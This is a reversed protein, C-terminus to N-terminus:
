DRCYVEIEVTRFNFSGALFEKAENSGFNFMPHMYSYGLNSYSHKNINSNSRINIDHGAGFTPGYDISCYIAHAPNTCKIKIPNNDRNIFSFIFAYKDQKNVNYGSWDQETFGGFVYGNLSKIVTLTNTKDDCLTHFAASSFGNESARYVIKWKLDLNFGCLKLLENMQKDTLISRLNYCKLSGLENLEMSEFKLLCGDFILNDLKFKTENSKQILQFAYENAEAIEQDDIKIQSLYKTWKYYFTELEKILKIFSEKMQDNIQFNEIREKEYDDIKKIFKENTGYIKQISQETTLQVEHRLDFCYEKIQDLGNNVGYNISNMKSYIDNLSDKFLEVSKSRYVENPQMSLLVLLSESVPLNEDPMQHSRSCVVCDYKKSTQNINLNSVCASCIAAGCGVIRPEDLREKCKKCKLLESIKSEEFFM